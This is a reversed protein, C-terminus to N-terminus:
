FRGGGGGGFGGGGFGGGGGGGFGGGGFGGGGGGHRGGGGGLLGGIIGGLVASGVDIGGGRGGYGGGFGGGGYGGGGFGSVDNKARQLADDATQLANQAITLAQAPDIERLSTAHAYDRRAEAIRTRADAGIAGRRQAIFDEAADITSRAQLLTQDLMHRARELNDIVSDIQQNAAELNALAIRPLRGTGSLNERASRVAQETATAAQTAQPTGIARARVIDGELDTILAAAQHEAEQLTAGLATVSRELRTAQDAANEATHVAAAAEGTDGSAVLQQAEALQADALALVERAQEANGDVSELAKQGYTQQLAALAAAIREDAGRATQLAGRAAEIAAPVDKAISRLEEFAEGKEDLVKQAAECHQLVAAYAARRQQEAPSGAAEVARSAEFAQGLEARATEIAKEFEDTADEGFEAAAFGLEQQATRIRDDTEILGASARKHLDDTSVGDYPDRPAAAARAGAAPAGSKKRRMRVILFIVAAVIIAIMVFAFLGFGSGGGSSEGSESIAGSRADGFAEAAAVVAGEWDDDGLRDGIRSEIETAQGDTIPDSGGASIAYLRDDVAVAVLYQNDGLGNDAVVQDAWAQRDSPNEFADVYVFWLDVDSDDSLENLADEATQEESSSLADISTDDLLRTSGLTVPDAALAPTAILTALAAAALGMTAMLRTRM